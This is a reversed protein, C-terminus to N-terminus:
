YGIGIMLPLPVRATRIPSAMAIRVSPAVAVPAAVAAISTATTQRQKLLPLLKELQADTGPCGEFEVAVQEGPNYAADGPNYAADLIFVRAHVSGAMALWISVAAGVAWKCGNTMNTM